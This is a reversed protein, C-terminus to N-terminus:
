AQAIFFVGGVMAKPGVGLQTACLNQGNMGGATVWNEWQHGVHGCREM